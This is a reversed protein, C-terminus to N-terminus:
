GDCEKRSSQASRDTLKFPLQESNYCRLFSSIHFESNDKLEEFRTNGGVVEMITHGLSGALDLSTPDFGEHRNVMHISDYSDRDWWIHWVKIFTTYSPLGLRLQEDRTMEEKGSPDSSWYYKKRGLWASWENEDDFPRPVPRIFLYVPTSTLIDTHLHSGEEDPECEFELYFQDL